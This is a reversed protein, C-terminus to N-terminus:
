EFWDRTVDLWLVLGAWDGFKAYRRQVTKDAFPKTRGALRALKSRVWSDLCLERYYGLMRLMHGAAYPGFGRLALLEDSLEDAPPPEHRWAEPDIQGSAVKRSLEALAEARYGARVVDKFFKPSREAMSAPRPFAKHGSPGAEGLADILRTVMGRTVQWTCNTTMLLKVMDEFATPARLIRGAGLKVAWRREPDSRLLGYLESLDEDLCLVDRVTARIFARDDSSLARTAEARVNLQAKGPRVQLEAVGTRPLPVAM